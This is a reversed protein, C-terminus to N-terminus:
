QAGPRDHLRCRLHRRHVVAHRPAPTAWEAKRRLGNGKLSRRAPAITRDYKHANRIADAENMYDHNDIVDHAVGQGPNVTAILQLKPYKPKIGQYFLAFRGQAGLYSATGNGYDENGIEV